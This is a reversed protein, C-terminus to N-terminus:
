KKMLWADKFSGIINTREKEAEQQTNFHNISVRFKNTGSHVRANQYGKKRLKDVSLNAKQLNSHSEIIIYYKPGDSATNIRAAFDSQNSCIEPIVGTDKATGLWVCSYGKFTGIGISTWKYKAWKGKQLILDKSADLAAWQKLIDEMSMEINTFFIIEYADSRYYTLERPKATMGKYNPSSTDFCLPTWRGKDSWSHMSCNRKYPQNFFLDKVHTNAVYSLARSLELKPLDQELRYKNFSEFLAKDNESICFDEISSFQAKSSLVFLFAMFLLMGRLTYKSKM